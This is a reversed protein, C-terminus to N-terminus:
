KVAAEKQVKLGLFVSELAQVEPLVYVVGATDRFTPLVVSRWFRVPVNICGYSIRNDHVSPSALRELRQERPNLSRVPHMSIAQEYDVWMITQGLSNRDLQALYRGAPTTREEPKIQALPRDGMDAFGDDGIALGLLAPAKGLMRGDRDFVFVRAERKDVVVFPLGQHDFSRVIWHTLNQAPVSAGLRVLAAQISGADSASQATAQWTVFPMAGGLLWTAIVAWRKPFPAGCSWRM